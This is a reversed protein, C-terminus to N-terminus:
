VGMAAEALGYYNNSHQTGDYFRKVMTAAATSGFGRQMVAVSEAISGGPLIATDFSRLAATADQYKQSAFMGEIKATQAAKTLGRMAVGVGGVGQACDLAMGVTSPTDKPVMDGVYQKLSNYRDSQVFISRYATATASPAGVCRAAGDLNSLGPVFAAMAEALKVGGDIKRLEDVMKKDSLLTNWSQTVMDNDVLFTKSYTFMGNGDICALTRRNLHEGSFENWISVGNCYQQKFGQALRDTVYRSDTMEIAMKYAPNTKYASRAEPMDVTTKNGRADLFYQSSSGQVYIINPAVSWIRGKIRETRLIDNQVANINKVIPVANMRVQSPAEITPMFNLQDLSVKQPASGPNHLIIGENTREIFYRNGNSDKAAYADGPKIDSLGPIRQTDAQKPTAMLRAGANLIGIVGSVNDAAALAVSEQFDVPASAYEEMMEIFRDVDVRRDGARGSRKGGSVTESFVNNPLYVRSGAPLMGSGDRNNALSSIFSQTAAAQELREKTLSSGLHRAVAFAEADGRDLAQWAEKAYYKILDNAATKDAAGSAIRAGGTKNVQEVTLGNYRFVRGTNQYNDSGMGTQTACGALTLLSAVALSVTIPRLAFSNKKNTMKLYTTQYSM